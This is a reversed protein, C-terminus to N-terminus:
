AGLLFDQTNYMRRGYASITRLYRAAVEAEHELCEVLQSAENPAIQRTQTRFPARKPYPCEPPEWFEVRDESDSGAHICPLPHALILHALEHYMVDSFEAESCSASVQLKLHDTGPVYLLTGQFAYRQLWRRAIEHCDDRILEPRIELDLFEQLGAHLGFHDFNTHDFSPVQEELEVLAAIMSDESPTKGAWARFRAEISGRDARFTRFGPIMALGLKM